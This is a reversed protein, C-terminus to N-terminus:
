VEKKKNLHLKIYEEIERRDIESLVRKRNDELVDVEMYKIYIKYINWYM